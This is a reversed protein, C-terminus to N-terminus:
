TASTPARSRRPCRSSKVSCPTGRLVSAVTSTRPRSCLSSARFSAASVDLHTIGAKAVDSRLFAAHLTGAPAVDDVYLGHGTLLRKDEKRTVKAGVYRAAVAGPVPGTTREAAQM